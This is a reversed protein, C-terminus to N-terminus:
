WRHPMGFEEEASWAFRVKDSRCSFASCSAMLVSAHDAPTHVVRVQAMHKADGCVYAVGHADTATSLMHAVTQAQRLLQHQVYEKDKGERSFAM